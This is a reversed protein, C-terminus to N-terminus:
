FAVRTAVSQTNVYFTARFRIIIMDFIDKWLGPEYIMLSKLYVYNCIANPSMSCNFVNDVTAAQQYREYCFMVNCGMPSFM